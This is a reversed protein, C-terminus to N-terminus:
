FVNGDEDIAHIGILITDPLHDEMNSSFMSREVEEFTIDPDNTLVIYMGDHAANPSRGTLTKKYMFVMDDDVVYSGSEVTYEVELNELAESASADPTNLKDSDSIFLPHSYIIPNDPLETTAGCGGIIPSLSFVFIIVFALKLKM